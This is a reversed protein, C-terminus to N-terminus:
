KIKQKIEELKVDRITTTTDQKSETYCNGSACGFAFIGMTAFYVGFVSGLWQQQMVSQIIVFAGLLVYLLRTFTWGTLLRARM